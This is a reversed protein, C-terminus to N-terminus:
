FQSLTLFKIQAHNGHPERRKRRHANQKQCHDNVAAAPNKKSKADNAM